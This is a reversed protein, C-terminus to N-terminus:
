IYIYIGKFLLKITDISDDLKFGLLKERNKSELFYDLDYDCKEM